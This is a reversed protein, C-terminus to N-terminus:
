LAHTQYVTQDGSSNMARAGNGMCHNAAPKESIRQSRYDYPKRMERAVHANGEVPM